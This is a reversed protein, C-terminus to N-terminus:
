ESMWDVKLVKEVFVRAIEPDFQTGSNNMIERSADQPSLEPRYPFPQTMAAYAECISLFRAKWPIEDESIKKPYGKGDWREHHHLVDLAIKDYEYSSVLIRYGIDTHRQIQKLEDKGLAMPKLLLESSVAIKGIDHIEALLLLSNLDSESLHFENGLQFLYKKVLNAHIREEPHSEFFTDKVKEIIGSRYDGSIMLKRHYMIMEAERIVDTLKTRMSTRTAVGISVSCPIGNIVDQKLEENLLDISRKAQTFPMNPWVIVFEDGGIRFIYADAPFHTVLKGTIHKLLHDGAQHGFADNTIKLADVDTMILSLPLCEPVDIDKLIEEYKRRNFLGTLHDYYSLHLIELEKEKRDSIDQMIGSFLTSGPNPSVENMSGQVFTWLYEGNHHCMRLEEHIDDTEHTLLRVFAHTFREQDQPHIHGKWLDFSLPAIPSDSLGVIEKWRENVILVGTDWNLEWIATNTGKIITQLRNRETMLKTEYQILDTIDSIMLILENDDNFFAKVHLVRDDGIPVQRSTQLHQHMAESSMSLVQDTSIGFLDAITM